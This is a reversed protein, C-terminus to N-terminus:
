ASYSRWMRSAIAREESGVVNGYIATTRFSAHGLWRQVLHPPVKNQFAAVGFAHRLGKPTAFPGHIDARVMMAKIRRWATTRSWSWLRRGARVPDRQAARLDFACDLEQLLQRPMPVQRVCRRTRRKLTEITAVGLELDLSYPTLALTESLRGGGWMLTLCFLRVEVAADETAKAFRRCERATLYKRGAPGYLNYTERVPQHM